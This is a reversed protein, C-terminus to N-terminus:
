FRLDNRGKDKDAHKARYRIKKKIVLEFVLPYFNSGTIAAGKDLGYEWFFNRSQECVLALYANKLIGKRPQRSTSTRKGGM